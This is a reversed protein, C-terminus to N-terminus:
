SAQFEGTKSGWIRSKDGCLDKALHKAILLGTIAESYFEEQTSVPKFFPPRDSKRFKGQEWYILLLYRRRRLQIRLTLLDSKERLPDGGM